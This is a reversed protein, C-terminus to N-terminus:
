DERKSIGGPNRGILTIEHMSQTFFIDRRRILQETYAFLVRIPQFKSVKRSILIFILRCILLLPTEIDVIRFNEARTFCFIFIPLKRTYSKQVGVGEGEDQLNQVHM